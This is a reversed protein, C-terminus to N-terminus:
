QMMIKFEEFSVEGDGNEDVELVVQDWVKKSINKGVGLVGKIEEVSISGSGDKDYYEFAAKLKNEQLLNDKNVSATVFESFDIEGSHDVDVLAFIRDVEVKAYEEGYYETFGQLLEDYQLYGDQNVDLAIFVKQLRGQEEKTVMNQVMMSLTAQQLKQTASFGKLNDLAEKMLGSDVVPKSSATQFWTHELADRAYIRKKYDVTLMKRILNKAQDSINSWVPDTMSYQGTSVRATIEKDSAGDFPPKGSLLIYLIVGISWVDCREDYNM